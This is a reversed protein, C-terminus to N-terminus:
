EDLLGLEVALEGFRKTTGAQERLIIMVQKVTLLQEKIAIAGLYETRSRQINLAELVQEETVECSSILFEGFRHIEMYYWRWTITIVTYALADSFFQIHSIKKCIM